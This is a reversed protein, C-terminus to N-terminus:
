INWGGRPLARELVPPLTWDLDSIRDAAWSLVSYSFILNLVAIVLVIGHLDYSRRDMTRTALRYGAVAGALFPPAMLLPVLALVLLARVDGHGMEFWRNRVRAFGEGLAAVGESRAVELPFWAGCRRCALNRAAQLTGCSPCGVPDEPAEVKRRM